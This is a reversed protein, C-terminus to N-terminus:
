TEWDDAFMDEQSFLYPANITRQETTGIYSTGNERPVLKVVKNTWSHRKVTTGNKIATMAQEYTM